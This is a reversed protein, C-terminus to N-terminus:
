NSYYDIFQMSSNTNTNKDKITYIIPEDEDNIFNYDVEPLLIKNTNINSNLSILKHTNPLFGINKLKLQDNELNLNEALKLNIRDLPTLLIKSNFLKQKTKKLENSINPIDIGNIYNIFKDINNIKDELNKYIIKVNNLNQINNLKALNSLLYSSTMIEKKKTNTCEKLLKNKTKIQWNKYKKNFIYIDTETSLKILNKLIENKCLINIIDKDISSYYKVINNNDSEM